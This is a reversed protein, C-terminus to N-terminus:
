PTSTKSLETEDNVRMVSHDKRMVKAKCGEVDSYICLM